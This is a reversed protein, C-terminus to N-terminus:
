SGNHGGARDASLEHRRNHARGGEDHCLSQAYLVTRQQYRGNNRGYDVIHSDQKLNLHTRLFIPICPYASLGAGSLRPLLSPTRGDRWVARRGQDIHQEEAPFRNNHGCKVCNQKCDDNCLETRIGPHAQVINNIGHYGAGFRSDRNGNGTGADSNDYSNATDGTKCEVHCTRNNLDASLAQHECQHKCHYRTHNETHSKRTDRGIDDCGRNRSRCKHCQPDGSRPGYTRSRNQLTQM